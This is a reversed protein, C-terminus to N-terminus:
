AHKIAWEIADFTERAKETTAILEVAQTLERLPVSKSILSGPGVGDIAVESLTLAGVWKWIKRSDKLVVNTGDKDLLEGIHVGASYTRVVVHQGLFPSTM